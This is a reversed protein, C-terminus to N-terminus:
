DSPWARLAQGRNYILYLPLLHFSVSSKSIAQCPAILMQCLQPADM